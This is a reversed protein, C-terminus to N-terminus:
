GIGQLCLILGEDVPESPLEHSKALLLNLLLLLCMCLIICVGTSWICIISVTSATARNLAVGWHKVRM